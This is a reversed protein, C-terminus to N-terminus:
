PGSVCFSPNAQYGSASPKASPERRVASRIAASISSIMFLWGVAPLGMTMPKECPAM